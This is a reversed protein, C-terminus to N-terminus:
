ITIDVMGKNDYPFNKNKNGKDKSDDENKKKAPQKNKNSGDKDVNQRESKNTQLVQQQNHEVQKQLHQAFLQQQSEPRNSINNHIQAVESSKPLMVQLDVPRISM